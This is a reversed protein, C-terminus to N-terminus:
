APESPDILRDFRLGSSGEGRGVQKRYGTWLITTGDIWRTLRRSREVRIGERPLEEDFLVLKDGANLIEGIARHIRGSGDPQLVAGRVLRSVIRGQDDKVQAPLLPVWNEPVRSSLRYVLLRKSDEDPPRESEAEVTVGDSRPVATELPGEVSREIAWALNAMEDRMFLVQELPRGELVTGVSPPLFFLNSAPVGVREGGSRRIYDLQWMAWEPRPLASDGIPRLLSRVGFTDTVVLSDTRTVSGIPLTLPIVFWDNGYSGSFEIMLLHALDSPGASVMDYALNADEVEWFRPAPAGRITVPAPISTEVFATAGDDGATGFNVEADLDFDSWGLHGDCYELATLTKEDFPDESLRASVSVGYELRSPIWADEDASKPQSLMADYWRLWNLATRRVEARDANAIGLEADSAFKASGRRRITAALARADVARGRVARVFGAAPSDTPVADARMAFKALLADRYNKSLPQAEMMRLFHSGAEVALPLMASDDDGSGLPRQEVKVELPAALPDYAPADLMTNAKVAGLFCRTLKANTGRITALVPTGADEAQYEGLQWQRTLFWLPDFVRATPASTMEQDRSRPELRTWSTISGGSM